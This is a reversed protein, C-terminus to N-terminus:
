EWLKYPFLTEKILMYFIRRSELKKFLKELINFVNTTNGFYPFEYFNMYRDINCYYKSNCYFIM